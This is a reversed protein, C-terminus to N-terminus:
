LRVERVALGRDIWGRQDVGISDIYDYLLTDKSVSDILDDLEIEEEGTMDDYRRLIPKCQDADFMNGRYDGIEIDGYRADIDEITFIAGTVMCQAKNGIMKGWDRATLKDSM